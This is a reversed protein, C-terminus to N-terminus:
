LLLTCVSMSMTSICRLIFSSSMLISMRCWLTRDNAVRFILPLRSPVEGNLLLRRVDASLQLGLQKKALNVLEAPSLAEM